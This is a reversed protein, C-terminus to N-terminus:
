VSQSAEKMRKKNEYMQVDARRFVEELSKDQWPNFNSVGMAVDVKDWPNVAVANIEAVAQEFQRELEKQNNWDEKQLVAVFEDGGIRFVPSHSYVKCITRCANQLYFDGKEHGYTDNITKLGNCDFMVVAFNEANEPTSAQISEDKDMLFIDFAGKNRVGTLADRFAKSNLDNIFVRMHNAMQQFSKTLIGIEDDGEYSLDVNYDGESIQQSAHVLQVLPNTIKRVLSLTLIIFLAVTAIATALTLWSLNRWGASIERVPASVFLNLGNSLTNWAAEKQVGNNTYRILRTDNSRGVNKMEESVDGLLVGHELQPHYVVKGKKDTLFAYGTDLIKLEKIQNVLTAYSIDMGVEGIFTGAKYLPAVYSVMTEGLNKNEYPDLWSPRGRELPLYYWGVHAFDDPKYEGIETVTLQKFHNGSQRSYWFGKVTNSLEPNIRYYYSLISSNNEAITKCVAEADALHEQLYADLAAQQAATRPRKRLSRGSGTAGIVNADSLPTVDFSDYVFRSVTEVSTETNHLYNNINDLKSDCITNLLRESNLEERSKVTFASLTGILISCILIASVTLVTIKTRISHM